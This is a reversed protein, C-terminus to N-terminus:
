EEITQHAVAIVVPTVYPDDILDLKELLPKPALAYSLTASVQHVGAAPIEYTLTRSEDPNLRQDFRVKAAEWPPVPAEGRDNEMLRMFVSQPDSFPSDSYNQWIQRGNEDFAQVTLVVMRMSSGSPLSHGVTKNTVRIETHLVTEDKKVDLQLVACNHLIESNYGGYFIHTHVQRIKGLEATKGEMTPMHCDQCTIGNKAFSSRRYEEETSCFSFGHEDKLNGHCTICFDSSVLFPSYEATHDIPVADKFPGFKVNGSVIELRANKGRGALRTAHCVDCTVGENKLKGADYENLELATVPQHCQDCKEAAQSNAKRARQLMLRYFPNEDATSQAHRSTKWELANQVHCEKCAQFSQVDQAEVALATFITLFVVRFLTPRM